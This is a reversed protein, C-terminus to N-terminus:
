STAHGRAIVSIINRNSRSAVRERLDEPVTRGDGAQPSLEPAKELLLGVSPPQRRNEELPFGARALAEHCAPYM